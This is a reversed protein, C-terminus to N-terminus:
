QAKSDNCDLEPLHPQVTPLPSPPLTVQVFFYIRSRQKHTAHSVILVGRDESLNSRRPIVARVDPHDENKFIIFNEACVLVGGPGDSQLFDAVM